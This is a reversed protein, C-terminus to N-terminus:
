TLISQHAIEITKEGELDLTLKTLGQSLLRNVIIKHSLALRVEEDTAYRHVAGPGTLSRRINSADFSFLNLVLSARAPNHLEGFYHITYEVSHSDNLGSEETKDRRGRIWGEGEDLPSTGFYIFGEPLTTLPIVEHEEAETRGDFLKECKVCQYQIIEKVM